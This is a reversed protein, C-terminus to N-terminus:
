SREKRARALAKKPQPDDREGREFSCGKKERHRVFGKGSRDETLQDGCQPCKYGYKEASSTKM